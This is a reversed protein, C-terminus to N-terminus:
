APLRLGNGSREVFTSHTAFPPTAPDRGMPGGGSESCYFGEKGWVNESLGPRFEVLLRESLDRPNSTQSVFV